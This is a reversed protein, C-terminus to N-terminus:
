VESHVPDQDAFADADEMAASNNSVSRMVPPVQTIMDRIIKQKFSHIAFARIPTEPTTVSPVWGM